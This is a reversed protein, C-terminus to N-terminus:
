MREPDKLKFSQTENSDSHPLAIDSFVIMIRKITLIHM